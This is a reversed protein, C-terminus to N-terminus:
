QYKVPLLKNLIQVMYLVKPPSHHPKTPVVYPTLHYGGPVSLRFLHIYSSCLRVVMFPSAKGHSSTTVELHCQLFRIVIAGLRSNKHFLFVMGFQRAFQVPCYIEAHAQRCGGIFAGIFIERSLLISGWADAFLM